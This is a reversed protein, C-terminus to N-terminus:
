DECGFVCLVFRDMAERKMRYVTSRGCCLEGCLRDLYDDDREVYFQTLIERDRESLTGLALETVEIDALTRKLRAELSAEGSSVLKKMCQAAVRKGNLEMLLRKASRVMTKSM